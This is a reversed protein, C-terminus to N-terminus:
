REVASCTAPYQRSGDSFNAAAEAVERQVGGVSWATLLKGEADTVQCTICYARGVGFSGSPLPLQGVSEPLTLSVEAEMETERGEPMVVQAFCM